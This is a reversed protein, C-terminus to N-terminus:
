SVPFIHGDSIRIVLQFQLSHPASNNVISVIYVRYVERIKGVSLDRYGSENLWQQSLDHVKQWTNIPLPIEDQEIAQLVIGTWPQAFPQPLVDSTLQPLTQPVFIIGGNADREVGLSHPALMNRLAEIDLQQYNQQEADAVPAPEVETPEVVTVKGPILIISGDTDQEVKWGYPVLSSRLEEINTQLLNAQGEEQEPASSTNASGPILIIGGEDDPIVQWGFPVLKSKLVEPDINQINLTTAAQAEKTVEEAFLSPTSLSLMVCLYLCFNKKKGAYDFIFVNMQGGVDVINKKLGSCM